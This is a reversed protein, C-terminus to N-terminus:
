ELWKKIMHKVQGVSEEQFWHVEVRVDEGDDDVIGEGKVHKWKAPDGGFEKTLGEAVGEHLPTKTGYGAFVKVRQVYTGEVYHFYREGDPSLIDYNVGKAGLSKPIPIDDLPIIGGQGNSLLTFSGKRTGKLEEITKVRRFGAVAARQPQQTLGAGASIRAYRGQLDNIHSQAERRLVDDGAAKVLNAM